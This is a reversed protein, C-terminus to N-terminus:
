DAVFRQKASKPKEPLTMRLQGTGLLPQVYKSIAYGVSEIGLYDAIEQRTRPTKCFAVIDKQTGASAAAQQAHNFLIVVFENRRNEFVPAPLGAAAMEKRITPIGSYRNETNMLAEAMAALTPNRLDPRAVGLDAVTM